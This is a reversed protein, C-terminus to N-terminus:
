GEIINVKAVEFYMNFIALADMKLSISICCLWKWWADHGCACTGYKIDEDKVESSRYRDALVLGFGMSKSIKVKNVSLYLGYWIIKICLYHHPKGWFSM